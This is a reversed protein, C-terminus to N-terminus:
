GALRVLAARAPPEIIGRPEYVHRTLFFGTLRFGDAVCGAQPPGSGNLFPPLALLRDRYPEGATRSVARGSKPSVYVLDDEVGTAACETLELGFGLETLIELEFRVLLPGAQAMDPLIDLILGLAEHLGPHPDREPLLRLLFGLHQVGFVGAPGEMLRAAREKVGELTFQGLHEELRAQWVADVSNGPQLLPQLRRSRGGRVVGLHRGHAPTMIEVLAHAEGQPRVGLIIGEDRWQM